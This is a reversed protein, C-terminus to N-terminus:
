ISDYSDISSSDDSSSNPSPTELEEPEKLQGLSDRIEKMQEEIEKMQEEEEFFADDLPENEEIKRKRNEYKEACNKLESEMNFANAM